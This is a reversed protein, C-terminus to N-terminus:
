QRMAFVQLLSLRYRNEFSCQTQASNGTHALMSAISAAEGRPTLGDANDNVDMALLRAGVTPFTGPWFRL